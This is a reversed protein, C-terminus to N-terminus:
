DGFKDNGILTKRNKVVKPPWRKGTRGGPQPRGGLNRLEELIAQFRQPDIKPAAATEVAELTVRVELADDLGERWSEPVESLPVQRTVPAM